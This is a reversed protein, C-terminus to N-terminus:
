EHGSLRFVEIPQRIGKFTIEGTSEAYFDDEVTSYDRPSILIEGDEGHDCPRAAMKERMAIALWLADGAPDDCPFPDNFIVMIGDDSRNDVGADRMDETHITRKERYAVALNQNSDASFTTVGVESTSLTHGSAGALLLINPDGPVMFLSYLNPSSELIAEFASLENDRSAAVVRLVEGTADTYGRLTAM